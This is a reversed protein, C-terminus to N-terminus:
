EKKTSFMGIYINNNNDSDIGFPQYHTSSSNPTVSRSGFLSDISAPLFQVKDPELENPSPSINDLPISVLGFKVPNARVVDNNSSPYM